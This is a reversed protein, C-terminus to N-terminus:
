VQKDSNIQPANEGTSAVQDIKPYLHITQTRRTLM